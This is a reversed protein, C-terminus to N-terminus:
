ADTRSTEGEDSLYLRAMLGAERLRSDLRAVEWDGYTYVTKVCQFLSLESGQPYVGRPTCGCNLSSILAPVSRSRKPKLLDGDASQALGAAAGQEFHLGPAAAGVHTYAVPAEGGPSSGERVHRASPPEDSRRQLSDAQGDRSPISLVWGELVSPAGGVGQEVVESDEM